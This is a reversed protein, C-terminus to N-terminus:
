FNNRKKRHNGCCSVFGNDNRWSKKSGNVIVIKKFSGPMNCMSNFEQSQKEESTMDYQIRNREIVDKLYVNAFM